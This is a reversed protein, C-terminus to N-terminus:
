ASLAELRSATELWIEEVSALEERLEAQEKALRALEVADASSEYLAPDALRQLHM